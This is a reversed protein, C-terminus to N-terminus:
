RRISMPCRWRLAWWRPGEGRRDAGARAESDAENGQGDAVFEERSMPVFGWNREWASNYVEWVREVEADFNKMDIPRVRSGRQGGAGAGGGARDEGDRHTDVSSCYALLDKAKRLGAQEMLAPYYRPNYTMMVMPDSDFGDVLMGCEYNTSPNVPGRLFKAGRQSCGNARATWCPRPWRRTTRDCEFFGFFGAKEEHFRNHAKDLIAAIRGVM